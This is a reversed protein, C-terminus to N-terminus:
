GGLVYVYVAVLGAMRYRTLKRCGSAIYFANVVQGGFLDPGLIVEPNGVIRSNIPETLAVTNKM